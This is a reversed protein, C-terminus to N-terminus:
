NKETLADELTKVLSDTASKNYYEEENVCSSLLVTGLVCLIALIIIGVKKM